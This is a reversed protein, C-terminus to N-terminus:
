WWILHLVGYPVFCNGLIFWLPWRRGPRASLMLNFALTIPLAHRALTFHVAWAQDGICLFFPVFIVGMRWFRNRPLPHLLLYACQALISVATLITHLNDDFFWRSWQIGGKGVAVGTEGLRRVMARLPWDMNDGDFAAHMRFRWGVYAVWLALPVAAILTWRVNRWFTAKWGPRFNLLGALGLLCTERTLAALAMVRAGRAGGVMVALTMLVFGPFDVLSRHMSEVVGCTLLMAAFGAFGAWGGPRFLVALMAAYGLWFVGNLAAYANLVWFPRGLGGIWAMWSLLIRRARYPPSDIALKLQPDSLLPDLALESYFQGDFGWRSLICKPTDRFAAIGRQNFERGICIQRTIGTAPSWARAYFAFVIAFAAAAALLFAWGPQRFRQARITM